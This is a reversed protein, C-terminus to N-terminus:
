QGKGHSDSRYGACQSITTASLGKNLAKGM